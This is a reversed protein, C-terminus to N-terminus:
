QATAGTRCPSCADCPAPATESRQDAHQERPEAQDDRDAGEGDIARRHRTEMRPGDDDAKDGDRQEAHRQRMEPQDRGDGHQHQDAGSADRSLRGSSVTPSTTTSIANEAATNTHSSPRGIGSQGSAYAM